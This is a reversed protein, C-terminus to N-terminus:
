QGADTVSKAAPLSPVAEASQAQDQLTVQAESKEKVDPTDDRESLAPLRKLAAINHVPVTIPLSQNDALVFAFRSSVSILAVSELRVLAHGAVTLPYNLDLQYRLAKGSELRNAEQWAAVTAYIFLPTVLFVAAVKYLRMSYFPRWSNYWLPNDVAMFWQPYRKSIRTVLGIFALFGALAIYISPNAIFAMLFDTLELYALVPIDFRSHLVAMYVLGALSCAFYCVSFIVGPNAKFYAQLARKDQIFEDFYERDNGIQRPTTGTNM